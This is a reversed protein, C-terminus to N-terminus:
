SSLQQKASEQRFIAQALEPLSIQTDKPVALKAIAEDTDMTKGQLATVVLDNFLWSGKSVSHFKEIVLEPIKTTNASYYEWIAKLSFKTEFDINPLQALTEALLYSVSAPPAEQLACLLDNTMIVLADKPAFARYSKNSNSSYLSKSWWLTDLKLNENAAIHNKVTNEYEKLRRYQEQYQSERQTFDESIKNYITEFDHIEALDDSAKFDPLKRPFPTKIDEITKILNLSSYEESEKAWNQFISDFVTGENGFKIFPLMDAITNWLIYAIRGKATKSIRDCAELLMSRYILIPADDYVTNASKWTQLLSAEALKIATDDALIGNNMSALVAPILLSEDSKLEDVLLSTADVIKDFRTDDGNLKDILGLHNMADLVNPM